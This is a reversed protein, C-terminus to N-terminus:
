HINIPKNIRIDEKFVSQPVCETSDDEGGELTINGELYTTYDIRLQKVVNTNLSVATNENKSLHVPHMINCLLIHSPREEKDSAEKKSNSSTSTNSTVILSPPHNSQTSVSSSASLDQSKDMEKTIVLGIDIYNIFTGGHIKVKRTRTKVHDKWVEEAVGETYHNFMLVKSGKLKAKLSTYPGQKWKWAKLGFVGNINKYDGFRTDFKEDYKVVKVLYDIVDHVCTRMLFAKEVIFPNEGPLVNANPNRKTLTKVHLAIQYRGEKRKNSGPTKLRSKKTIGSRTSVM